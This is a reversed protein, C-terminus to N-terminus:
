SAWGSLTPEGVFRWTFDSDMRSGAEDGGIALPVPKITGTVTVGAATSPIFTVSQETGKNAWSWAVVSASEVASLDQLFTGELTYTFTETSSAATTEGSLVRTGEQEDVNESPNVTCASLQSEVALAGTGLVLTGPGLDTTNITM